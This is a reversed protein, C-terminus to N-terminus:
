YQQLALEALDVIISIDIHPLWESEAPASRLVIHAFEIVCACALLTEAAAHWSMAVNRKVNCKIHKGPCWPEHGTLIILWSVVTM